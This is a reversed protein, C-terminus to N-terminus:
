RQDTQPRGCKVVRRWSFANIILAPPKAHPAAFGGRVSRVDVIAWIQVLSVLPSQWKRL